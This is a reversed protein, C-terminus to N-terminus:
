VMEKAQQPDVGRTRRWAYALTRGLGGDLSWRHRLFQLFGLPLFRSAGPQALQYQTFLLWFVQTGSRDQKRTNLCEYVRRMRYSVPTEALVDVAERPIPMEWESRLYDLMVAAPQVFELRQCHAVLRDWDIANSQRLVLLADPLWRVNSGSENICGNFFIHVLLHEPCLIRCQANGVQLPLSAEWMPADYTPSLHLHMIHWHLDCGIAKKEHRYGMGHFPARQDETLLHLPKDGRWGLEVLLNVAQSTQDFPVLLDFDGLPRTGVDSYYRAIMAAGKLVLTNIGRAAFAAILEEMDRMALQNAVWTQRYHRGLTQMLPHEVKLRQLNHYLLPLIRRSGNDLRAFDVGSLWKVWADRAREGDDIAARVLLEQQTTPRWAPPQPQAM